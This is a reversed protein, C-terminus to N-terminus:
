KQESVIDAALAKKAKKVIGKELLYSKMADPLLCFGRRDDSNTLTGYAKKQELCPILKKLFIHKLLLGDSSGKMDKLMKEIGVSLDILIMNCAWPTDDTAILYQGDQSFGYPKLPLSSFWLFKIDKHVVVNKSMQIFELKYSRVSADRENIQKNGMRLTFTKTSYVTVREGSEEKSTVQPSYNGLPFNTNSYYTFQQSNAKKVNALVKNYARFAAIFAKQNLESFSIIQRMVDAPLAPVTVANNEGGGLAVGMLTLAMMSLFYGQQM